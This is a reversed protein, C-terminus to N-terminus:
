VEWKYRGAYVAGRLGVLWTSKYGEGTFSIFITTLNRSGGLDSKKAIKIHDVM